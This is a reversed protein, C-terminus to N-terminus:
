TSCTDSRTPALATNTATLLDPSRQDLDVLQELMSGLGVIVADRPRAVLTVPTGGWRASLTSALGARLAGGGSLLIPRAALDAAVGEPLQNFVEHLGITLADVSSTEAEDLRAREGATMGENDPHNGDHRELHELDGANVEVRTAALVRGAGTASVETGGAGIDFMIQTAVDSVDLNAGLATALESPRTIATTHAGSALVARLVSRDRLSLTSPVAVVVVEPDLVKARGLLGRLLHVASVADVVVGRRVPWRSHAGRRAAVSWARDGVQLVGEPHPGRAVLTPEDLVLGRGHVLVRTRATGLDIAVHTAPTRRTWRM